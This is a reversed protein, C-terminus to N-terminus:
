EPLGAAPPGGDQAKPNDPKGPRPPVRKFQPGIDELAIFENMRIVDAVDTVRRTIWISVQHLKARDVTFGVEVRGNTARNERLITRLGLTDDRNDLRLEVYNIRNPEAFAKWKRDTPFSLDVRVNKPGAARYRIELGEAKADSPSLYGFSIMANSVSASAALVLATWYLLCLPKTM